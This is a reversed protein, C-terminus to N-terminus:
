MQEATVSKTTVKAWSASMTFRWLQDRPLKEPMPQSFTFTMDRTTPRVRRPVKRSELGM